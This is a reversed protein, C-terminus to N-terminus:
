YAPAARPPPLRPRRGPERRRLHQKPAEALIRRWRNEASTQEANQTLPQLRGAIRRPVAAAAERRGHRSAATPRTRGAHHTQRAEGHARPKRGAIAERQHDPDAPRVFPSWRNCM